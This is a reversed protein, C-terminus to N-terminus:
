VSRKDATDDPRKLKIFTDFAYWALAYWPIATARGSFIERAALAALSLPV